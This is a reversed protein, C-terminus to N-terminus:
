LGIQDAIGQMSELSLAIFDAREIGLETISDIQERNAGRAFAKDKFKKKVSSTEVDALKKTPKVLACATLLGTIPDSAYLAKDIMSELAVGTMKNHSQIAHLLEESLGKGKLIEMSKLGHQEPKDATMEYDVDHLLGALGWETEDQGLKKALATMVAEVALSHYYLNVSKLHTKVLALANKREM